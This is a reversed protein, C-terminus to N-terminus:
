LKYDHVRITCFLVKVSAGSMGRHSLVFSQATFFIFLFGVKQPMTRVSQMGCHVWLAVDSKRQEIVIQM